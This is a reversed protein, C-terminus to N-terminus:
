LVLMSKLKEVLERKHMKTSRYLAIGNPRGGDLVHVIRNSADIIDSPNKYSFLFDWLAGNTKPSDPDDNENDEILTIGYLRSSVSSWATDSDILSPFMVAGLGILCCSTGCNHVDSPKDVEDRYEDHSFHTMDFELEKGDLHIINHEDTKELLELATFILRNRQLQNM